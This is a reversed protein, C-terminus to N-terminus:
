AAYINKTFKAYSDALKTDYKNKAYAPGNYTLAYNAWDRNVLYTALRGKVYKKNFSVFANLHNSESQRMANYFANIDTFGAFEFNFGMIQFLGFSTARIAAVQDIKFARDFRTYENVGSLYGGAVPNILDPNAKQLEAVKAASFREQLAKLFHHREFLIKVRGDAFFGAGNSEVDCVTRVHAASVGLDVSAKLISNFTLFKLRIFPDLLNATAVDYTGSTPLKNLTQYAKLAAVTKLGFVGDPTLTQNARENLAKQIGAKYIPDLDM